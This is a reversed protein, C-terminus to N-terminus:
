ESLEAPLLSHLPGRDCPYHRYHNCHATYKSDQVLVGGLGTGRHRKRRWCWIRNRERMGQSSLEQFNDKGKATHSVFVDQWHLWILESVNALKTFYLQPWVHSSLRMAQEHSCPCHGVQQNLRLSLSHSPGALDWGLYCHIPSAPAQGGHHYSPVQQTKAKM